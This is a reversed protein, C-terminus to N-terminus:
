IAPYQIDRLFIQRIDPWILIRHLGLIPGQPLKVCSVDDHNDCTTAYDLYGCIKYSSFPLFLSTNKYM